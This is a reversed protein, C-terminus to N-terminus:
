VVNKMPVNIVMMVTQQCMIVFELKLMAPIPPVFITTTVFKKLTFAGKPPAVLTMLALTEMMVLKQLLFVVLNHIVVIMPVLMIITVSLKVTLAVQKVIVDILQVITMIMVILMMNM